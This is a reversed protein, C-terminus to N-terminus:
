PLREVRLLGNTAMPIYSFGNSHIMRPIYLVSNSWWYDQNAHTENRLKTLQLHLTACRLVAAAFAAIAVLAIRKWINM